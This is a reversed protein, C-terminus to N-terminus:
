KAVWAGAARVYLTTSAAGDTRLCISGNSAAFTPAGTCTYIGIATGTLGMGIMLRTTTNVPLGSFFGSLWRYEGTGLTLPAYTQFNVNSATTGWTGDITITTNTNSVVRRLINASGTSVVILHGALENTNLKISGSSITSGASTISVEKSLNTVQIGGIGAVFYNSGINAVGINAISTRDISTRGYPTISSPEITGASLLLQKVDNVVTSAVSGNEGLEVVDGVNSIRPIHNEIFKSGDLNNHTHKEFIKELKEFKAVFDELKIKLDEKEQELEEVRDLLENIKEQNNDM